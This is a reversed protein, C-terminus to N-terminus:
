MLNLMFMYQKITHLEDGNEVKYLPPWHVYCNNGPMKKGSSGIRELCNGKVNIMKMLEKGGASANQGLLLLRSKFVNHGFTFNSLM